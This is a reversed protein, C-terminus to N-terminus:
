RLEFILIISFNMIDGELGVAKFYRLLIVITLYDEFSFIEFLDLGSTWCYRTTILRRQAVMVMWLRISLSM